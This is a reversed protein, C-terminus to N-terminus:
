CVVIQPSHVPSKQYHRMGRMTKKKNSKKRGIGRRAAVSSAERAIRETGDGVFGSHLLLGDGLLGGLLRGILGGLLGGSKFRSSLGGILGGILGGVLRCRELGGLLRGGLLRGRLRRRRGPHVCVCVHVRVSVYMFVCQYVYECVRM